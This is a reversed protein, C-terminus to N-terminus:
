QVNVFLNPVAQTVGNITISVTVPTDSPAPTGPNGGGGGGGNGGGGGGCATIILLLAFALLTVTTRLSLYKKKSAALLACLAIALSLLAAARAAPWNGSPRNKPIPIVASPATTAVTLTTAATGNAAFSITPPNFSCSSESPLGVCVAPSLTVNGNSSFGNQATFTLTASGSQGPAIVNITTPNATVTFTAAGTVAESTSATSNAYNSDGSYGAYVIQTNAPLSSTTVQAQGNSLTVPGGIPNDSGMASMADYFQVTGTLAPGGPQVPAVNATLTVTAGQQINSNSTSVTTATALLAVTETLSNDTAAYNVDGSYFASIQLSGGPLTSTTIQAQGNVLAISGISNGNQSFQVSGTLGPGGTQLPHAMATFTVSSGHAISPNSSSISLSTPIQVDVAIPSSTSPAYNGDGTYQATLSNNGLALQSTDISAQAGPNNSFGGAVSNVVTVPSGLQTSGTFFAVQGTPGAGLGVTSISVNFTNFGGLITYSPTPTNFTISTPAKTITITDTSTSGTFSNDGGYNMKLLNTGGPLQVSQDETYGTSNLLYTGADLAVGNNTVTISGTPCGSQGPANQACADGAQSTVNMRLLELSGYQATTTNASTQLDTTPNFLEFAFNSQSAEPAVNVAIPPTSASSGFTGDGPYQAVITYAGGPLANTSGSASGGSLTFEQVGETGSPGTNAILSVSGTPTGSSSTVTISASVSHGHATNVPNGSNLTLVTSSPKLANSVSTWKSILNAANVSGLGTALDYGTATAYGSLVGLRDGPNSVTCNPSGSACPMAITSGSPVDYFVCSSAPNAASVCTAGSRAALQYLIYNANGQRSGTAQNILAMIGAFVQVSASTGGIGTFDSNAAYPDCSTAVPNLDIECILYFSGNFGNSAYLSIDPLDRAGDSPTLATQWAPKSYGQTCSSQSQTNSNICSSKGGSGGVLQVFGANQVTSNNCSQEATTSGSFGFIETNTCTSNWTLEPIYGKASASTPADQPTINWFTAFDSIDNFDTGGVAVNYPTSAFGNVGLGLTDSGPGRQCGAAGSDGSSVLVTIGQASAQQWLQNYFINGSSGIFFECEGFSESLIPAINNDVAYQAALDAGLSVETSEAIVLDITANPAVASAWQVDLDAETEAGPVLGPDPGSIILNFKPAPLGFLTRFNALDQPNVNSEDVVAIAAGDGNYQTAPAPSLTMNPVNYIKAFDAPALAFYCFPQSNPNCPNPFTFQTAVPKIAGTAKSRNFVGAVEHFQSRPFNHLTDLGAVVPTLATPIQPDSSNAWHDQGNVTYRHIETHFAERVQGATGSFEIVTRGSSVKAIQFGHSLLWSSITQIDQDAPGFQQGFQQPSLWQHFNPSSADQQQELLADLATEQDPSRKLVLLMRQMPLSAPAGGRDSAAQALPHTNGHLTTLRAEDIAATIRPQPPPLSQQAQTAAPLWLFTLALLLRILGLCEHISARRAM